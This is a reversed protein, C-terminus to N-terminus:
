AIRARVRSLTEPTIGLYSAIQKQPFRNVWEPHKELLEKYREDPSKTQLTALHSAPIVLHAVLANLMIFAPDSKILHHIAAMSITALKTKELAEIYNKSPQQAILSELDSLWQNETFFNITLDGDEGSSFFRLSGQIVFSIGGPTQGPKLLLDKKRLTKWVLCDIVQQVQNESFPHLKLLTQKISKLEEM